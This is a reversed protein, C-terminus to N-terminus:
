FDNKRRHNGIAFVVAGLGVLSLVAIVIALGVGRSGARAQRVPAETTPVTTWVMAATAETEAETETFAPATTEPLTTEPVTTPPVTTEPVTTEPVMTEPVTPEALVAAPAIDETDETEYGSIYHDVGDSDVFEIRHAFANELQEILDVPWPTKAPYYIKAFTNWLCSGKFSPFASGDCHIAKLNSCNCLCEEGFIRFSAPLHIRVLGDCNRFAYAGITHMSDGFDVETIADYDTFSRWGVTTVTGTFVVRQISDKYAAWPAEEQFDYMPGAGSITLTNGELSWAVEDGCVGYMPVAEEPDEESAFCALPFVAWLLSFAILISFIKKM